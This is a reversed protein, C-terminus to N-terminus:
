GLARLLRLKVVDTLSAPKPRSEGDRQSPAPLPVPMPEPATDNPLGAPKSSDSHAFM